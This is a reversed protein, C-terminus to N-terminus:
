LRAAVQSDLTSLDTIRAVLEGKRDIIFTTPLAVVNYNALNRAGDAQSNYVTIWPLPAAAQRWLYEDDDVSVQFIELGRAHYKDYIKKLERNFAASEDAAYATFNLLVVKGSSALKELSHQTGKNDYLTIDFVNVLRAELTDRPAADSIKRNNLYLNRLYSTRPDAPRTHDFANAVAGIIKLDSPRSPDFLQLGGIRKNIIYYSVIDSPDELLLGGLERKLLSDNVVSMAPKGALMGAVKRDVAMLREAAKSGSLTYDTDFASATTVVTVTEISDIPFYLTKDDLRLRYIDPYGMAAHKVKFNGGADLKVSDLPYWMGNNNAEVIMTHGEAGEIRGDVTWEASGGCSALMAGAMVAMLRAYIKNKCFTIM